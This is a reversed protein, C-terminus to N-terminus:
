SLITLESPVQSVQKISETSLLGSSTIDKEKLECICTVRAFLRREENTSDM